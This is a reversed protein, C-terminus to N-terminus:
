NAIQIRSRYHRKKPAPQPYLGKVMEGLKMYLNSMRDNLMQVEEIRRRRAATKTKFKRKM